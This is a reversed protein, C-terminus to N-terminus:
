AAKSKSSSRGKGHSTPRHEDGDETDDAEAIVRATITDGLASLKEDAAMEEKLSAAMLKKVEPLGLADSWAVLSRYRVIEYHEVAQGSAVVATDRMPTGDTDELMSEGERLVGDIAECTEAGVKEDILAFADKIRAIQTETEGRHAELAAKLKENQAAKIMKPLAKLIKSEAYHIDKLTHVLMDHQTKITM